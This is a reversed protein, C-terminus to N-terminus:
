DQDHTQAGAVNHNHWRPYSSRSERKSSCHFATIMDVVLALFMLTLHYHLKRLFKPQAPPLMPHLHCCLHTAYWSSLRLCTACYSNGVGNCSAARSLVAVAKNPM